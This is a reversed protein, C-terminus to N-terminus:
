LIINKDYFCTICSSKKEGTLQQFISDRGSEEWDEM